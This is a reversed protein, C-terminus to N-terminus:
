RNVCRTMWMWNAYDTCRFSRTKKSEPLKGSQLKRTKEKVRKAKLSIYQAGGNGSLLWVGGKESAVV